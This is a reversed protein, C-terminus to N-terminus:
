KSSLVLLAAALLATLIVSHRGDGDEANATSFCSMYVIIVLLLLLRRRLLM